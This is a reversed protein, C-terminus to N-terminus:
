YVNENKRWKEISCRMHFGMLKPNQFEEMVARYDMWDLLEEKGLNINNKQLYKIYLQRRDENCYNWFISNLKDFVEQNRGEINKGRAIIEQANKEKFMQGMEEITYLHKFTNDFRDYDGIKIKESMDKVAPEVIFSYFKEDYIAKEEPLIKKHENVMYSYMKNLQNRDKLTAYINILDALDQNNEIPSVIKDYINNKVTTRNKSLEKLINDLSKPVNSQEAQICDSIAIGNQEKMENCQEQAMRVENKKNRSFFRAVKEGFSKPKLHPKLEKSKQKIYSMRQKVSGIYQSQNNIFEKLMGDRTKLAELINAKEEIETELASIKKENIKNKSENEKINFYMKFYSQLVSHGSKGDYGSKQLEEILEPTIEDPKIEGIRRRVIYNELKKKITEELEKREANIESNDYYIDGNNYDQSSREFLYFGQQIQEILQELETKSLGYEQAIKDKSKEFDEKNSSNQQKQLRSYLTDIEEKINEYINM